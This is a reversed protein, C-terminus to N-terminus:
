RGGRVPRMSRFNERMEKMKKRSIEDYEAQSVEKGKGPEKIEIKEKPNLVIKSCLISTRGDNLEMILGPLGWYEGPGQNVPIEPCYWAVIEIEKEIMESEKNENEQGRGPRQFVARMNPEVVHKIATAKYATYNGIKKTEAQMQWELKPLSDNVLFIKGFLDKSVAYKGSKVNKYYDEGGGMMMGMRMGGRGQGMGPQELKEEQKYISETRNFSLIYTRESMQKMRELIMKKRDEPIQRGGFDMDITTKSEYYAKGQFDQAFLSSGFVLLLCAFTLLLKKM